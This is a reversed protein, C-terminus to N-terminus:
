GQGGVKYRVFRVIELKAAKLLDGVTKKAYKMQNAMPQDVLVNEGLWTKYKGEAIKEVVAGPKGAATEEAQKKALAKEQAAVDAPVESAVAFRPNLAAIHTCIDRLLVPDASEGKVQVLVGLTGDHHVYEGTIGDLRVFRAPRMNERILGVVDAIRDKVTQGQAAVSPQKELEEVSAPNKTAVQKALENALAIFRENKVVSPSECRLEVLAGATKHDSFAGVRGEATERAGKDSALFKGGEERLVLIAKEIDGGAKELAAKCKMMPMDTRDRLEKVAAASIQSM